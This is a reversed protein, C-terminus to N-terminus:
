RAAPVPGAAARHHLPRDVDSPRYKTPAVGAFERFERTLHAQDSYGAAAAIDSLARNDTAAMSRAASNFRRVRYYHKPNLGIASRFLAIFHRSSYGSARQLEAVRVPPSAASCTALAQAVAPHMLLPRHIRASLWQELIRFTEAPTGVSMLRHHLDVGRAGWMADLSVHCDTLEEMSVGLLAGAGGPRFSVGLSCGQPKPGAVYYSSQPGHVIGGSWAISRGGGSPQLLIPREHLAFVLQTTGSPLMHECHRQQEDRHSWWLCEIYRELPQAPRHRILQMAVCYRSSTSVAVRPWM